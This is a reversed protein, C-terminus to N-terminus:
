AAIETWFFIKQAGKALVIFGMPWAIVRLAMGLCIWRLPEVAGAFKTTYFLAIVVPALTLTALVGPGAMLLSIEAQENVMRNCEAHDKAAATLRPYCDSGM